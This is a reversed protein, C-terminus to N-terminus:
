DQAWINGTLHAPLPGDAPVQEGYRERLKMRVYAHLSLYLPRVQEWLRDLERTFEEPTMEYRARWMAGTDAFGLERAGENALEVFPAYDTKMAPAITHWGEWVERLRQPDRNKAMIETIAEVDLCGQAAAARDTRPSTADGNEDPCWKGRGYAGEISAAIETLARAKQPDQPTVLVLSLKLLNMQRRADPALQVQDFRTAEQAFRAVAEIFAQNARANLAELRVHHLHLLGV